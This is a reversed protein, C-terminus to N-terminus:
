SFKKEAEYHANTKSFSPDLYIAKKTTQFKEDKIYSTAM